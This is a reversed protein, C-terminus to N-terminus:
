SSRLAFGAVLAGLADRWIREGEAEANALMGRLEVAALGECLSHFETVAHMVPRGGCDVREVKARLGALAESAAPRFGAWVHEEIITRQVALSFLSPHELAFARFVLGAEILDAVPDDTEPLAALGERLLDFAKAGLATLLGDRSGFLSYVARTTTKADAAVRRVSVAEPGERAAIREAAALLAAATKEDHERPRGM